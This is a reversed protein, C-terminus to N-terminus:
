SANPNSRRNGMIIASENKTIKTIFLKVDPPLWVDNLLQVIQAPTKNSFLVHWAQHKKEPVYSINEPNDGGGHSRCRRHHATIKQLETNQEQAKKWENINMNSRYSYNCKTCKAFYYVLNHEINRFYLLHQPNTCIRCEREHLLKTKQCM